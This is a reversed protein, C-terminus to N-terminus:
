KGAPPAPADGQLMGVWARLLALVGNGVLTVWLWVHTQQPNLMAAPIQYTLTTSLTVILFGLWGQISTKSMGLITTGPTDSM